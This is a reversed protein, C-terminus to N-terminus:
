LFGELYNAIRNYSAMVDKQVDKDWPYGAEEPEYQFISTQFEIAHEVVDREPVKFVYDEGFTEYFWDEVERAVNGQSPVENLVAGMTKIDYEDFKSEITEIEDFLIELSDRAITNPHSPFLVNESAILAGDSLPGLNPPSDILIFDYDTDLRDVAKRLAEHGGAESYLYKELNFNKLHSPVMDFEDTEVILQDLDNYTLEGMDSLIDFLAYESSRYEERLGMKLTAGGQPDADVVLVDYGQHNLAGAINITTTSKGVGGKQMAITVRLTM